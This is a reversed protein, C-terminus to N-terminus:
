RGATVPSLGDVGQDALRHITGALAEASAPRGLVAAAGKRLAAQTTDPRPFSELVIIRLAPRNAAMMELWALDDDSLNGVDWVLLGAPEDLPPRGHRQRIAPCGIMALLDCLGELDVARKAAASVAPLGGDAGFAAEGAAAAREERRATAPLGLSGPRGADRDRLWWALRGPLDHWPVEEVGPLPPGSRRRGDVLGGAVSVLPALPWRRSVSVAAELSWHDPTPSALLIVAPSREAFIQPVDEVAEAATRREHVEGLQGTWQRALRLDASAAPGIWLLRHPITPM